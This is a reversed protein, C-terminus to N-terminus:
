EGDGRMRIVGTNHDYQYTSGPENLTHRDGCETCELYERDWEESYLEYSKNFDLELLGSEEDHVTDWMLTYGTAVIVPEDTSGCAPCEWEKIPMM